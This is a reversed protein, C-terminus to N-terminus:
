LPFQDEHDVETIVNKLTQGTLNLLIYDRLKANLKAKNFTMWIPRFKSCLYLRKNNKIIKKSYIKFALLQNNKPYHKIFSTVTCLTNCM